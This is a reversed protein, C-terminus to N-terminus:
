NGLTIAIEVKQRISDSVRDFEDVLQDALQQGEKALEEWEFDDVQQHPMSNLTAHNNSLLELEANIEEIEFKSILGGNFEITQRPIETT